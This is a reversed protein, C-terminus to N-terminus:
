YNVLIGDRSLDWRGTPIGEDDYGVAGLSGPQTKDRFLNVQESRYRFDGARWKDLTAFSTGAYNAEYGLVRDLELPHGVNEHITLFLHSPDLMLDYKGPKVSPAKLKERADRAAARADAVMDYSDGYIVVGVPRKFRDQPKADLFEYGMGM